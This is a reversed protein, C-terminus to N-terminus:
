KVLETYSAYWNVITGDDELVSVKNVRDSFDTTIRHIEVIIGYVWASGRRAKVLGGLKFDSVRV